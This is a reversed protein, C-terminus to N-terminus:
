RSIKYLLYGILTGLISGAFVDLPYHVGIYVRSIVVLVALSYFILNYKKFERSLLYAALFAMTAHTSPFSFSQETMLLNVDPLTVFPRPRAVLFKLGQSGIYHAFTAGAMLLIATLRRQKDKSFLLFVAIIFIAMGGGLETVIPMVKDLLANHCTHNFFYFIKTDINILINM